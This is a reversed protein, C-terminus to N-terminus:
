CSVIFIFFVRMEPAVGLIRTQTSHLSNSTVSSEPQTRYWVTDVTNTLAPPDAPGVTRDPRSARLAHLFSAMGFDAELSSSSHITAISVYMPRM